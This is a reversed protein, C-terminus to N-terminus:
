KSAPPIEVIKGDKFVILPLGYRANERAAEQQARVLAREVKRALASM